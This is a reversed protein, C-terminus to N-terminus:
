TQEIWQVLPNRLTDSIIDAGLVENWKAWKAKMKKYLDEQERLNISERPILPYDRILIGESAEPDFYIKDTIADKYYQIDKNM